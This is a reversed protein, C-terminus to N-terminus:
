ARHTQELPQTNHIVVLLDHLWTGSNAVETSIIPRVWHGLRTLNGFSFSILKGQIGDECHPFTAPPNGQSTWEMMLFVINIQIILLLPSHSMFVRTSFIFMIHHSHSHYECNSHLVRWVKGFQNNKSWAEMVVGSWWGGYANMVLRELWLLDNLKM